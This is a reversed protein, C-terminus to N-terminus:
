PRVVLVYPIGKAQVKRATDRTGNSRGDWLITAHTARAVMISNRELGAGKGKDWGARITEHGFPRYQAWTGALRDVGGAGGEIVTVHPNALLDLVMLCQDLKSWVWARDSITRSGAVLLTAPSV